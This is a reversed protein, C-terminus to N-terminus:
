SRLDSLAEHGAWTLNGMLYRRYPEEKGSILTAEIYGAQVCLGVHYQVQQDTYGALEPPHVGAGGGRCEAHKLLQQILQMHRKM